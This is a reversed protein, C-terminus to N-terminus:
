PVKDPTLLGAYVKSQNLTVMFGYQNEMGRLRFKVLKTTWFCFVRPTM